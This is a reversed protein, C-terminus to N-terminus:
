TLVSKGIGICLGKRFKDVQEKGGKMHFGTAASGDCTGSGYLNLHFDKGKKVMQLRLRSQDQIPLLNPTQDQGKGSANSCQWLDTKGNSPLAITLSMRNAKAVGALCDAQSEFVELQAPEKRAGKLSLTADVTDQQADSEADSRSNLLAEVSSSALLSAERSPDFTFVGSMRVVKPTWDPNNGASPIHKIPTCLGKRILGWFFVFYSFM